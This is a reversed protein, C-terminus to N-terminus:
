CRSNPHKAAQVAILRDCLWYGGRACTSCGQSGLGPHAEPNQLWSSGTADPCSLLRRKNPCLPRAAKFHPSQLTFPQM